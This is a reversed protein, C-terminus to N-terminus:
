MKMGDASYLIDEKGIEVEYVTKGDAKVIAAVEKIKRGPFEKMVAESVLKPLESMLIENETELVKGEPSYVISFERKNEYYNVEFNADEQEWAMKKITPHATKFAEKVVEPVSTGKEKQACSMLAIGVTGMMIVIKRM